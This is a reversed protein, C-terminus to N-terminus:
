DDGDARDPLIEVIRAWQDPLYYEIVHKRGPSAASPNSLRYQGHPTTVISSDPAPIEIRVPAM